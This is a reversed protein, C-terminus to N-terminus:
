PALVLVDNHIPKSALSLHYRNKGALKAQYMAMDAENLLEDATRNCSQPYYSVGISATVHLPKGHWDTPQNAAALLRELTLVADTPLSLEALLAVFEDGGNRALTDSERLVQRMRNALKVLVLDGAEHGYNDNIAKFGDLDIFVVALLQKHRQAQTMAHRMRDALLVRNPLDTLPDYRASHELEVQYAKLDSINNFVAVYQQVTGQLDHVASITLMEALIEGDKRRNWIEGRWYGTSQIERWMAQYFAKDQRGSRLFRPNKGLVEERSYGTIHVFAENVDIICGDAQTIVIAERIHTFVFAANIRQLRESKARQVQLLWQRRHLGVALFSLVALVPVLVGLVTKVEIVWRALAVDRYLHTVVVFPYQPSVRFATLVPKGSESQDELQGFDREQFHPVLAKGYRTQGVPLDPRTAMLRTGDLRLVEAMGVTAALQQTMQNVFFDPNLAVLLRLTNADDQVPATLAILTSVGDPVAGTQVPQAAAFDRGLWPTGLRLVTQRGQTLPLYDSTIVQLGVNAPNSSVVIRDQSNILSLSRLHPAGRLTRAFDFEVERLAAPGPTGSIANAAAQSTANLSQTLTNEFSRAMLTSVQFSSAIADDRLLWLAYWTIGLVAVIFATLMLFLRRWHHSQDGM